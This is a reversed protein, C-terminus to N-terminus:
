IRAVRVTIEAAGAAKTELAHGFLTNSTGTTTLQANRTTGDGVYYVPSGIVTVAGDVVLKHAGKLHVTAHTPLNGGEGRKTQAVGVLQGVVVPDGSLTGAVVPLSIHDADRFVENTAM